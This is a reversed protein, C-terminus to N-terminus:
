DKEKEKLVLLHVMYGSGVRLEEGAVRDSVRWVMFERMTERLWMEFVDPSRQQQAIVCVTPKMGPGRERLRCIDACTSVFPGVLAENYICDCSVLVDFGKDDSSSPEICEKLTIPDDEEWDLTTFGINEMESTASAAGTAAPVPSSKGGKARTQTKQKNKGKPRETYATSINDLVNQHFLRRVYEQDTALYGRVSPALTLALLGSIGCGLEVVTGKPNIVDLRGSDPNSDSNGPSQLRLPNNPDSLWSALLPTIKWLVELTLM